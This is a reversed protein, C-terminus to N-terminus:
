SGKRKSSWSKQSSLQGRHPITHSQEQWPGNPRLSFNFRFLVFLFGLLFDGPSRGCWQGGKRMCLVAFHEQFIEMRSFVMQGTNPALPSPRPTHSLTSGLNWKWPFAPPGRCHPAARCSPGDTPAQPDSYTQKGKIQWISRVWTRSQLIQNEVYPKKKM